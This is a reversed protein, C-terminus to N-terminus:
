QESLLWWESIDEVMELYDDWAEKTGFDDRSKTFSDAPCALPAAFAASAEPSM